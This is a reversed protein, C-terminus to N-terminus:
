LLAPDDDDSSPLEEAAKSADQEGIIGAPLHYLRVRGYGPVKMSRSRKGDAGMKLLRRRGLADAIMRPDHGKCVEDRWTEPLIFYGWAGIEDRRKFGARDIIRQEM